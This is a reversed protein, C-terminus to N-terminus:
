VFMGGRERRWCRTMGFVNCMGSGGDWVKDAFEDKVEVVLMVNRELKQPHGVPFVKEVGDVGRRGEEVLATGAGSMWLGTDVHKFFVYAQSVM